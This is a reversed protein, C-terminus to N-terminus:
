DMDRTYVIVDIISEKPLNKLIKINLDTYGVEDHELIGSPNIKIAKSNISVEPSQPNIKRWSDQVFTTPTVSKEDQKAEKIGYMERYPIQIGIHIYETNVEPSLTFTQGVTFPGCYEVMKQM